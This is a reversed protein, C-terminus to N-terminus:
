VAAIGAYAQLREQWFRILAQAEAETNAEAILRVLPETASSRLHIWKEEWRLKLGDELSIEAAGAEEALRQWLNPPLPASLTIKAKVMAHNPYRARLRLADGGEQALYSLLLAIGVLADRGYHLRPYIIGGNGEGGIVAGHAKMKQVVYYEGVRSEYFPVQHRAAVEAVARTTSANAVVPGKEYRLVYDAVAVLSYEEGFPEGSPLIFAVRDVDPDVAIGLHAGKARVQQSLDTLNEPLPEPPRPFRGHPEGNLVEIHSVGLAELLAPVAVAGGSCIGDVIVKLQAQRIAEPHVGPLRLISEIHYSLLGEAAYVQGPNETYSFTLSDRLQQVEEIVSPPYFEGNSGLLKLANWGAPNHSATLILGGQAKRYPIAMAITPTTTLGADEITHGQARLAQIVIPRLIAGSPRADQGVIVKCPGGYQRELWLGWAGVWQLADLPTLNEGVKGETTGRIGSASVIVAM